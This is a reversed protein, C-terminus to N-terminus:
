NFSELLLTSFRQNPACFKRNKNLSFLITSLAAAVRKPSADHEEILLNNENSIAEMANFKQHNDAAKAFPVYLAPTQSREIESIVSAGSRSVVADCASYAFAMNEEFPKVCAQIGRKEYESALSSTDAQHGALHIVSPKEEMEKLAAPILSSFLATGQSGGIVLVTKGSPPLGFYSRSKKKEPLPFLSSRLPHSVCETKGRLRKSAEKFDCGTWHAYPSFLRIVKGPRANAEYLVFPTRRLLAAFLIPVTHYSGFGIVFPYERLLRWAQKTGCLTSYAFSCGRRLSFSPPAAKIDVYGWKKKDFYPNQSLNHGAFLVSFGNETLEEAVVQAPIIHGGSGAAAILVKM